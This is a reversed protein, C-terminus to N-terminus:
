CRGCCPAKDAAGSEHEDLLGAVGDALLGRRRVTDPSLLDRCFDRAEGRLWAGM